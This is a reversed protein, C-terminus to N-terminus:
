ILPNRIKRAEISVNGDSKESKSRGGNLVNLPRMTKQNYIEGETSILSEKKGSAGRNKRQAASPESKKEEANYKDTL